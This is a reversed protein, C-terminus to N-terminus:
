LINIVCIYDICKIADTFPFLVAFTDVHLYFFAVGTLANQSVHTCTGRFRFVSVRIHHMGLHLWYLQHRRGAHGGTPLSFQEPRSLVRAHLSEALADGAIRSHLSTETTDNNTIIIGTFTKLYMPRWQANIVLLLMGHEHLYNLVSIFLIPLSRWTDLTHLVEKMCLLNICNDLYTNFVFCIQQLEVQFVTSSSAKQRYTLSKACINIDHRWISTM